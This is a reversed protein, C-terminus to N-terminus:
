PTAKQSTKAEVKCTESDTQREEPQSKEARTNWELANAIHLM